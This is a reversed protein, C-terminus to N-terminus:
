LVSRPSSEAKRGELLLGGSLILLCAYIPDLGAGVIPVFWFVLIFLPTGPPHFGSAKLALLSFEM